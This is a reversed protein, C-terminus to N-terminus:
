LDKNQATESQKQGLVCTIVRFSYNPNIELENDFRNVEFFLFQSEIGIRAYM